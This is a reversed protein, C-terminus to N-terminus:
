EHDQRGEDNFNDPLLSCETTERSEAEIAMQGGGAQGTAVETIFKWMPPMGDVNKSTILMEKPMLPVLVDRAFQIPREMAARGLAEMYADGNDTLWKELCALAKQRGTPPRGEPNGSQGPKFAFQKLHERM